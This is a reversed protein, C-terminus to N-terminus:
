LWRARSESSAIRAREVRPRLTRANVHRRRPRLLVHSVRRNAAGGHTPLVSRQAFWTTAAAGNLRTYTLPSRLAERGSPDVFEVSVVSPGRKDRSGIPGLGRGESRGRAVRLVLSLTSGRQPVPPTATPWIHGSGSPTSLGCRFFATLWRVCTNAEASPRASPSRSHPSSVTRLLTSTGSSRRGWAATSERTPFCRVGSRGSAAHRLYADPSCTESVV